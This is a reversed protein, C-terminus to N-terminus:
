AIFLTKLVHIAMFVFVLITTVESPLFRPHSPLPEWHLSPAPRNWIEALM